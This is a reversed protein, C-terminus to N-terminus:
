SLQQLLAYPDVPKSIFDDMGISLCEKAVDELAHASLGIIRTSHKNSVAEYHRIRKTLEVGDLLPMCVDTLLLDYHKLQIKDWAELGDKAIEVQFGAKSLSKQAIIRCIVDDEALLVSLGDAVMVNEEHSQISITNLNITETLESRGVVEIPLTITFQSGKGLESSVEIDGDMALVLRKAITTGLGTGKRSADVSLQVFPEFMVALKESDIGIGSDEVVIIVYSGHGGVKIRVYGQHTFKVANGIINLLVQRLHSEDGNVINPVHEYVLTLEVNKESASMMFSAVTEQLLTSFCFPKCVIEVKNADIKSLDLIDDILSQLVHSSNQALRLHRRHEETLYDAEKELIHHLGIIGHIPTRLEHSMNAIFLSKARNGAEADRAAQHLQDILSSMYLPIITLILFIAVSVWIHESWFPNFLYVILFCVNAIAMTGLLYSKGYRCGNGIIVFLYIALVFAGKDGALLLILSIGSLDIAIGIFRRLPNMRPDLFIWVFVACSFPVYIACLLFGIHVDVIFFCCLFIFQLVVRTAAQKHETDDRSRFKLLKAKFWIKAKSNM